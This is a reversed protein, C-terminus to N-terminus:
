NVIKQYIWQLLSVILYLAIIIGCKQITWFISNWDTLEGAGNDQIIIWGLVIAIVAFPLTKKGFIHKDILAWQSGALTEEEEQSKGIEPASTSDQEVWFGSSPTDLSSDPGSTINPFYTPESSSIEQGQGQIKKTKPTYRKKRKSM